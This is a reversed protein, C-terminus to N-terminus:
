EKLVFEKTVTAEQGGIKDYVIVKFTYKGPSFGMPGPNIAVNYRELIGGSLKGKGADGLYKERSFVRKGDSAEVFIDLDFWHKGKSDKFKGVKELVMIVQEGKVAFVPENVSSPGDAGLKMWSVNGVSFRSAGPEQSKSQPFGVGVSFFVIMIVALAMSCRHVAIRIKM